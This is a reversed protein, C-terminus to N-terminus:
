EHPCLLAKKAWMYSRITPDEFHQLWQDLDYSSLLIVDRVLNSPAWLNQSSMLQELIAQNSPDFIFNQM